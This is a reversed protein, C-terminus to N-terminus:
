GVLLELRPRGRRGSQSGQEAVDWILDRVGEAQVGYESDDISLGPYLRIMWEDLTFRLAPRTAQLHRARTTKGSGALGYM